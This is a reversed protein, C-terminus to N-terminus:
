FIKRVMKKMILEKSHEIFYLNAEKDVRVLFGETSKFRYLFSGENSYVCYFVDGGERYAVYINNDEGAIVSFYFTSKELFLGEEDLSPDKQFYSEKHYNLSPEGFTRIFNGNCDYKNIKYRLPHMVYCYGTYDIDYRVSYCIQPYLGIKYLEDLPAFRKELNGDKIDIIGIAGSNILNNIGSINEYNIGIFLKENYLKLPPEFMQDKIEVYFLNSLKRSEYDFLLVAYKIENNEDLTEFLVAINKVDMCSGYIDGKIGIEEFDKKTIGGIPKLESDTIVIQQFLKDTFLFSKNSPHYQVPSIYSLRGIPYMNDKYKKRDIETLSFVTNKNLKILSDIQNRYDKISLINADGMFRKYILSGNYTYIGVSPTENLGIATSIKVDTDILIDFPIQFLEKFKEIVEKEKDTKLLLVFGNTKQYENYYDYWIKLENICAVCDDFSLSFIVYGNKNKLHEPLVQLFSLFSQCCFSNM